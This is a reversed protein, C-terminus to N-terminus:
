ENQSLRQLIENGCTSHAILKMERGAPIIKIEGSLDPTPLFGAGLEPWEILNITAPAFYDQIGIFELEQADRVRYFDFHHITVAPLMYSEVLTYTPSKVHGQYGLGRLFGRTFTTKGAGLQGTLFIVAHDSCAAAVRAGWELLATETALTVQHHM